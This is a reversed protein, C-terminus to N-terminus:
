CPWLEESLEDLREVFRVGVPWGGRDDLPAIAWTALGAAVAAMAGIRSDEVGVSGAAVCGLRSLGLGYPDPAPKGREVDDGGVVADIEGALGSWSLWESAARRPSSTVVAIRWGAARAQRLLPGAGAVPPATRHAQRVMEAYNRLLAEPDGPLGHDRQLREIITALPPGNLARFEAESGEAGRERLFEFYVRRLAEISDALTGDLDLLLGRGSM